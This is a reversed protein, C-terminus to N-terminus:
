NSRADVTVSLNSGLTITVSNLTMKYVIPLNPERSRKWNTRGADYLLGIDKGDTGANNASGSPITFNLLPNNTGNNVSAQDVMQPNIGSLNGGDDRNGNSKWPADDVCQYTVNKQFSSSSNGNAANRRVFINNILTLNQCNNFCDNAGSSPGYWLNHNFLINNAKFQVINYNGFSYFINNNFIFSTALLGQGVLFTGEFWNGEFLFNSLNYYLNVAINQTFKNRIFSINKIGINNPNITLTSTFILGHFESGSAGAGDITCGAVNSILLNTKDPSWGPGFVTLKKNNITFADYTVSSGGVYISDGNVSADIASQITKYQAASDINSVTRITASLQTSLAICLLISIFKKM